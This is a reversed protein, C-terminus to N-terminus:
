NELITVIENFIKFKIITINLSNCVENFISSIEDSAPIVLYKQCDQEHSHVMLQGIATYINTRSSDTKVEYLEKLYGDEEVGLDIFTNKVIRSSSINKKSRWNQLADVILGHYSRYELDQSRVGKKDGSYESYYDKYQEILQIAQPTEFEDQRVAEKFKVVSRIYKLLVAISAEEHIAMLIMGQKTNGKSDIVKVLKANLYSLFAYKGVGEKGGGVKGTHILYSTQSVPDMAFFSAVRNNIGAIPINLEVTINLSKQDNVMGFWNLFRPSKDSREDISPWYWFDDNTSIEVEGVGGGPYGIQKKIRKSFYNEVMKQLKNQLKKIEKRSEVLVLM